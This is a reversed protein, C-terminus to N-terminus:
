AYMFINVLTLYFYFLSIFYVTTILVINYIKKTIISNHIYERSIKRKVSRTRENRKEVNRCLVQLWCTAEPM